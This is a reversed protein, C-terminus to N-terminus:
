EIGGQGFLASPVEQRARERALYGSLVAQVAAELTEGRKALDMDAFRWRQGTAEDTVVTHCSMTDREIRFRSDM